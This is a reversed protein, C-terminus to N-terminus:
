ARSRLPCTRVSVKTYVDHTFVPLSYVCIVKGNDRGLCCSKKCYLHGPDLTMMVRDTLLVWKGMGGKNGYESIDLVTEHEGSLLGKTTKRKYSVLFKGSSKKGKGVQKKITAPFWGCVPSSVQHMITRGLLAADVLGPAKECVSQFHPLYDESWEIEEVDEDESPEVDQEKSADEAKKGRSKKIGKESTEGKAAKEKPERKKYKRKPVGVVVDKKRQSVPLDEFCNDSCVWVQEDAIMGEKLGLCKGHFWQDCGECCLMFEDPNYM